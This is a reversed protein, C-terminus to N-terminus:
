ARARRPSQLQDLHGDSVRQTVSGHQSKPVQLLAMCIMLVM